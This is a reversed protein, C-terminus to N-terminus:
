QSLARAVVERFIPVLVYLLPVGVIWAVTFGSLWKEIAQDTWSINLLTVVFSMISIM